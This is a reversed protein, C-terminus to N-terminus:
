STGGSLGSAINRSGMGAVGNDFTPYLSGPALYGSMVSPLMSNIPYGNMGYNLAGMNSVNANHYPGSTGEINSIGKTASVSEM